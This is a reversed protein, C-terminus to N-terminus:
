GRDRRKVVTRDRRCQGCSLCKTSRYVVHTYPQGDATTGAYELETPNTYAARETSGCKACRSLVAAAVPKTETKSGPPRGRKKEPQPM